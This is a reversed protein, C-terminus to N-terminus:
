KEGGNMRQLVDKLTDIRSDLKDWSAASDKAETRLKQYVELSITLWEALYRLEREYNRRAKRKTKTREVDPM